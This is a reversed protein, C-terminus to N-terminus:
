CYSKNCNKAFAKNKPISVTTWLWCFPITLVYLDYAYTYLMSGVPLEGRATATRIRSAIPATGAAGALTEFWGAPQLSAPSRPTALVTTSRISGYKSLGPWSETFICFDITVFWVARFEDGEFRVQQQPPSQTTHHFPPPFYPPQFDSQLTQHHMTPGPGHSSGHSGGHGSTPGNRGTHGGTHTTYAPSGGSLGIGGHSTLREQFSRTRTSVPLFSLCFNTGM